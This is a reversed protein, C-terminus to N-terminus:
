ANVCNLDEAFRGRTEKFVVINCNRKWMSQTRNNSELSEIALWTRLRRQSSCTVKHGITLRAKPVSAYVQRFNEKPYFWFIPPFTAIVSSFLRKEIVPNGGLGRRHAPSLMSAM